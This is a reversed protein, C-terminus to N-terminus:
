TVRAYRRLRAVKLRTGGPWTVMVAGGDLRAIVLPMAMLGRLRRALGGDFRAVMLDCWWLIVGGDPAATDLQAVMLHAVM